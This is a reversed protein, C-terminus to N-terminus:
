VHILEFKYNDDSTDDLVFQKNKDPLIKNVFEIIEVLNEYSNDIKFKYDKGQYEIIEVWDGYIQDEGKYKVPLKGLIKEIDWLIDEVSFKWDITFSPNINKM